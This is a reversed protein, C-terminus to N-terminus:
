INVAVPVNLPFLVCCSAEAVHPEDLLAIAVILLSEVFRPVANTTAAAPEVVTVAHVPDIQPEV